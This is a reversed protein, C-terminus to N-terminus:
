VNGAVVDLFRHLQQGVVAPQDGDNAAAHRGFRRRM